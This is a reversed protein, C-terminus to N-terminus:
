SIDHRDREKFCFLWIRRRGIGPLNISEILKSMSKTNIAIGIPEKTNFYEYKILKDVQVRKTNKTQIYQNLSSNKM